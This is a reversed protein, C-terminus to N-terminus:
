FIYVLCLSFVASFLCYLLTSITSSVGRVNSSTKYTRPRQLTILAGPLSQFHQLDLLTDERSVRVTPSGLASVSSM